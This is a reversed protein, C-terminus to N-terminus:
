VFSDMCRLFFAVGRGKRVRGHSSFLDDVITSYINTGGDDCYIYIDKIHGAARQQEMGNDEDGEKKKDKKGCM